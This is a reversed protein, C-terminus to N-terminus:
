MSWRLMCRGPNLRKGPVGSIRRVCDPQCEWWSSMLFSIWIDSFRRGSSGCIRRMAPKKMGARSIPFYMRLTRSKRGPGHLIGTREWQRWFSEMPDRIGEEMQAEYLRMWKRAFESEEEFLPLFDPSFANKRGTGRTGAMQALPIETLGLHQEGLTKEGALLEELALPHLSEGALLAKRYQRRALKRAKRYEEVAAM